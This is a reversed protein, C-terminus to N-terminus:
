SQQLLAMWYPMIAASWRYSYLPHEPQLMPVAPSTDHSSGLVNGAADLMILGDDTPESRFMLEGSMDYTESIAKGFNITIYPPGLQPDDIYDANPSANLFVAEIQLGQREEHYMHYKEPGPAREDPGANLSVALVVALLLLTVAGMALVQWWRKRRPMMINGEKM